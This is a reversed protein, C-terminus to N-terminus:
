RCSQRLFRSIRETVAKINTERKKPVFHKLHCMKAALSKSNHAVLIHGLEELKKSLAVQHDNVVEDHKKLRPMALLPKRKDLAMMITGMGAHSIIGAATEIYNNFAVKDLFDTYEFNRPKYKSQGVQGFITEHILDEGAIEDVARVLREFPFQTGVTLFIM